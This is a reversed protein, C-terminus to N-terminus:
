DVGVCGHVAGLAEVVGTAQDVFYGLAAAYDEAEGAFDNRVVM